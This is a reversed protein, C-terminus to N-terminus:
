VFYIMTLFPPTLHGFPLRPMKCASVAHQEPDRQADDVLACFPDLIIDMLLCPLLAGSNRATLRILISLKSLPILFPFFSALFM